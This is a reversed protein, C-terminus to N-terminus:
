LRLASVLRKGPEQMEHAMWQLRMEEGLGM